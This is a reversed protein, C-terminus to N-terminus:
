PFVTAPTPPAFPVVQGDTANILNGNSDCYEHFDNAEQQAFPTRLVSSTNAPHNGGQILVTENGLCGIWLSLGSSTDYPYVITKEPTPIKTGNTIPLGYYYVHYGDSFNIGPIMTLQQTGNVYFANGYGNVMMEHLYPSSTVNIVGTNNQIALSHYDAGTAFECSAETMLATVTGDTKNYFLFYEFGPQPANLHDAFGGSCNLKAQDPVGSSSSSYYGIGVAIVTSILLSTLILPIANKVM